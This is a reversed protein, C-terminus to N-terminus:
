SIHLSHGIAQPMKKFFKPSLQKRLESRQAGLLQSDLLFYLLKLEFKILDVLRCRCDAHNISDLPIGPVLRLSADKPFSGYLVKNNPNQRLM